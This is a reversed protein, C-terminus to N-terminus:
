CYFLSGNKLRRNKLNVFRVQELASHMKSIERRTLRVLCTKLYFVSSITSLNQLLNQLFLM